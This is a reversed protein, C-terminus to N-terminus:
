IKYHNIQLELYYNNEIEKVVNKLLPLLLNEWKERMSQFSYRYLNNNNRNIYFMSIM